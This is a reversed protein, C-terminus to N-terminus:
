TTGLQCHFSVMVDYITTKSYKPSLILIMYLYLMEGWYKGDVMAQVQQICVVESVYPWIFMIVHYCINDTKMVKVLLM